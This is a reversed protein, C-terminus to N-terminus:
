QSLNELKQSGKRWHAQRSTVIEPEVAVGFASVQKRSRTHSNEGVRFYERTPHAPTEHFLSLLSLAM